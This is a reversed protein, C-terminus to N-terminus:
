PDVSVQYLVLSVSGDRRQTSLLPVLSLGKASPDKTRWTPLVVYQTREPTRLAERLMHEGSEWYRLDFSTGYLYYTYHWRLWHHYLVADSPANAKLYAVIEDLGQYAWHDGGIPYGNLAAKVGSFLLLLCLLISPLPRLLRTRAGYSSVLRLTRALYGRDTSISTPDQAEIWGRPTHAAPTRAQLAPFLHVAMRGGLLAALPALPLLYRDWVSFGAVTHLVIYAVMYAALLTDIRTRRDQPQNRWNWVLLFALGLAFAVCLVPSGFLYRAWGLWEVLREGWEAATAWVLGGYSLTSQQWYGPRIAWRQADWWTVLAFPVAFGLLSYLLSRTGSLVRRRTPTPNREKVWDVDRRKLGAGVNGVWGVAFVLPYLIVAHQKTAFALGLWLGTWLWHRKVVAYLAALTFTVLMPDTFATRAFLVDYPSCTVFLMAWRAARSGYLRSALAYVLATNVMSAALNPLRAALESGGFLGFSTALSFLYLPPKDVPVDLLFPDGDLIRLAWGSYLAEDAHFRDETLYAVRLLFGFLLIAVLLFQSTHTAKV